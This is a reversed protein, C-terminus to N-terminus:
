HLLAEATRREWEIVTGDRLELVRDAHRLFDERHTAVIVLGGRDAHERCVRIVNREQEDDLASSPEDLLLVPAARFLARALTIRQRQGTSLDTGGEHLVGDYGQPRASIFDHADVRRCVEVVKERDPRSSGLAVNNLISDHFLAPNQPMWATAASLSDRSAALGDLAISGASAPLVGALIGLLTSKGVGSDGTMAVLEGARFSASAGRLVPRGDYDFQLGDLALSLLPETRARAPEPHESPLGFLEDLRDLSALGSWWGFVAQALGHLPRYMLLLAVLVTGTSALDVSSRSSWAFAFVLAVGLAGALEVMPGAAASWTEAAIGSQESHMAGEDIKRAVPKVAGYARLVAAGDIAEATSAVVSSEAAFLERQLRRAPRAALVILLVALPLVLLGPIALATDVRLAVSALATAVLVSRIGQGVGLHLLTRVGHVEVQIRSALEGRPWALLKSPELALVHGLLKGRFERIVGLQLRAALHTRLTESLARLAGLGVLLWVIQAVSLSPIALAGSSTEAGLKGEFSRVLPGVLWAYGATAAASLAMACVTALVLPTRARLSQLLETRARDESSNRRM